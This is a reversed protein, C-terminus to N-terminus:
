PDFHSKIRINIEDVRCTLWPSPLKRQGFSWSNWARWIKEPTFSGDSNQKNKIAEWMELFREDELASKYRSLVDVVHLIDYWINPYRLKMFMSGISFGRVKQSTRYTWHELLADIGRLCEESDTLEQILSLSKLSLLSSYPCYQNKKGPGKLNACSSKCRWGNIDSLWVLERVAEDTQKNRFGFSLLTYLLSAADCLMWEMSEGKKEAWIEPLKILTLFMGNESQNSLIREGIERVNENEKNLGIDALFTLKHIIHRDDNHRKLPIQGPWTLAEKIIKSVKPHEAIQSEINEGDEINYAKSLYNKVWPQECKELYFIPDINLFKVPSLM